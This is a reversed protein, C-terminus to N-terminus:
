KVPGTKREINKIYLKNNSLINVTPNKEMVNKKYIRIFFGYTLDNKWGLFDNLLKLSNSGRRLDAL